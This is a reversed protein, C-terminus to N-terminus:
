PILKYKRYQSNYEKTKDLMDTSPIDNQYYKFRGIGTAMTNRPDEQQLLIHAAYARTSVLM